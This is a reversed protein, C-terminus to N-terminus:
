YLVMRDETARQIRTVVFIVLFLILAQVCATEYRGNLIANQYVSFVLTTTSNNPGGNTLLKIQAFAKFSNTINLFVVFFIQPSAVPIMISVARRLPGAGDLKACELLDEPVNRFGVLLFIYSAGINLWVTVFAVAILAWQTDQLWAINTGLLANLMGGEKRMIFTFIAAAPASAVAMPLAYLVEYVRSGREREASLLALILAVLLTGVGVLLAFKLTNGFTQSFANSTLVRIFNKIGAWKVFNGRKDTLSFSLIITKVFPWLTFLVFLVMSPLLLLYPTLKFKGKRKEQGKRAASM